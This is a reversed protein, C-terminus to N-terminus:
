SRRAGADASASLSGSEGNMWEIEAASIRIERHVVLTIGPEFRGIALVVPPKGCRLPFVIWGVEEADVLIDTRRCSSREGTLAHAPEDRSSPPASQLGPRQQAMRCRGCSRRRMRRCRRLPLAPEQLSALGQACGEPLPEQNELGWDTQIPLQVKRCGRRRRIRGGIPDGGFAIPTKPLAFGVNHHLCTRQCPNAVGRMSRRSLQQGSAQQRKWDLGRFPVCREEAARMPRTGTAPGTVTYACSRLDLM